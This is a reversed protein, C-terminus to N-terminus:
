WTLPKEITYEIIKFIRGFYSMLFVLQGYLVRFLKSRRNTHGASEMLLLRKWFVQRLLKDFVQKTDISTALRLLACQFQCKMLLLEKMFNALMLKSYHIRGVTPSKSQHSIIIM